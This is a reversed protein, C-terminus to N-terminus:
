LQESYARTLAPLTVEGVLRRDRSLVLLKQVQQEKMIGMAAPLEEDEYCFLVGPTMIQSVPTSPDKSESKLRIIDQDTMMGQIQGKDVIPLPGPGIDQIKVEAEALTTHPHVTMCDTKMVDKVKM